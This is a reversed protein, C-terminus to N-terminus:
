RLMQGSNSRALLRQVRALLDSPAFPKIVYDDAGVAQGANVDSSQGRASILIIPPANSGLERKLTRCLDLGSSDPLMIDLLAIRPPTELAVKLAQKGKDFARITYGATQLKRVILLQISPDDEVVLIYGARSSGPSSNGYTTQQDKPSQSAPNAPNAPNAPTAPNM